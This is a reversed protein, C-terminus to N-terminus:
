VGEALLETEVRDFYKAVDMFDPNFRAYEMTQTINAHGLQQQLLHFPMGAKALQVATTHRHDHFTYRALGVLQCTRKHEKQM